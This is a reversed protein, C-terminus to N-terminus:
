TLYLVLCCLSSNNKHLYGQDNSNPPNETMEAKMKCPREHHIILPIKTQNLGSRTTRWAQIAHHAQVVLLVRM